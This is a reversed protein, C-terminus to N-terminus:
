SSPCLDLEEPEATWSMPGDPVTTNAPDFSLRWNLRGGGAVMTQELLLVLLLLGVFLGANLLKFRGLGM